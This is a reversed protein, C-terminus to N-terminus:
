SRWLCLFYIPWCFYCASCKYGCCCLRSNKIRYVDSEDASLSFYKFYYWILEKVTETSEAKQKPPKKNYEQMVADMDGQLWLELADAMKGVAEAVLEQEEAGFRQLVHKVVAKNNHAPHGIGIKFRPFEGTGLHEQVSKIGNHGGASGKRRVRVQGTPLDLDDQVVAIDQPDVNFFNAYAGVAVGSLNMYTTPKLLLVKEPIRYEGCLANRDNKWTNVGWRRALEDLVMFGINHRTAEYEKGINGLGVILKM